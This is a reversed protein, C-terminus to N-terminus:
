SIQRESPNEPRQPPSKSPEAPEVPNESPLSGIGALKHFQQFGIRGCSKYSVGTQECANQECDQHGRSGGGRTKNVIKTGRSGGGDSFLHIEEQIELFLGEFLIALVRGFNRVFEGFIAFLRFQVTRFSPTNYFALSLSTWNEPPNKIKEPDGTKQFNWQVGAQKRSIGSFVGKFKIFDGIRIRFNQLTVMRPPM